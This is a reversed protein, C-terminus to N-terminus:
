VVPGDVLLLHLHDLVALPARVDFDEAVHISIRLLALPLLRQQTGFLPLLHHHPASIVRVTRYRTLLLATLELYGFVLNL